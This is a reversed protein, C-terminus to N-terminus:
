HAGYNHTMFRMILKRDGLTPKAIERELGTATNSPAIYNM